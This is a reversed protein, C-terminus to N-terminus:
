LQYYKGLFYGIFGIGFLYQLAVLGWFQTPEKARHVVRGFRGWAEGTFTARVALSLSIAGFFLLGYPPTAHSDPM